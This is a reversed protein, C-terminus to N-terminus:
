EWPIEFLNQIERKFKFCVVGYFYELAAAHTCLCTALRIISKLNIFNIIKRLKYAWLIAYYIM